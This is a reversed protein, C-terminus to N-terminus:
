IDVEDLARETTSGSFEVNIAMEKPAHEIEPSM